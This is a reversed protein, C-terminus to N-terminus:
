LKCSFLFQSAFCLRPLSFCSIIEMPLKRVVAEAHVRSHMCEPELNYQM